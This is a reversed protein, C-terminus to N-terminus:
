WWHWAYWVRTSVAGSMKKDLLNTCRQIMIEMLGKKMGKAGSKSDYAYWEDLEELSADGLEVHLGSTIVEKELAEFLLAPRQPDVPSMNGATCNVFASM